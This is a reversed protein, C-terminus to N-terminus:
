SRALDCVVHHASNVSLRHQKRLTSMYTSSYARSVTMQVVEQKARDNDQRLRQLQDKLGVMKQNEEELERVKKAGELQAAKADETEKQRVTSDAAAKRHASELDTKVNSLELRLAQELAEVQMLLQQSAEARDESRQRWAAKAATLEEVQRRLRRLEDSVNDGGAAIKKESKKNAEPDDDSEDDDSAFVPDADSDDSDQTTLRKRGNAIRWTGPLGNDAEASHRRTPPGPLSPPVLPSGPAPAPAGTQSGDSHRAKKAPGETSDCTRPRKAPRKKQPAKTSPAPNTDLMTIEAKRVPMMAFIRAVDKEPDREMVLHLVSTSHSKGVFEPLTFFGRGPTDTRQMIKHLQDVMNLPWKQANRWTLMWVIATLKKDFRQIPNASM